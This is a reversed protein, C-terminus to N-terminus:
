AELLKKLKRLAVSDNRGSISNGAQQKRQDIFIKEDIFLEDLIRGDCPTPLPLGM